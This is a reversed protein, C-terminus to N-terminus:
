HVGRNNVYRLLSDRSVVSFLYVTCASIGLALVLSQLAIVSLWDMGLRMSIYYAMLKVVLIVLLASNVVYQRNVFFLYPSVSYFAGQVAIGFGMWGTAFVLGEFGPFLDRSFGSLFGVTLIWLALNCGITILYRHWIHRFLLGSDKKILGGIDVMATANFLSSLMSIFLCAQFALMFVGLASDGYLQLILQRDVVLLLFSLLTSLYAPFGKQILRFVESTEFGTEKVESIFRVVHRRLALILYVGILFICLVGTLDSNVDFDSFVVAVTAAVLFIFEPVLIASFDRKTRLYPEMAFLLVFPMCYFVLPESMAFAAIGYYALGLVIYSVSFSGAAGRESHYHSYIYGQTLGLTGQHCNKVVFAVLALAGYESPLLLYALVVNALQIGVVLSVRPLLERGRKVISGVIAPQAM